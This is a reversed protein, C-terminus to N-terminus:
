GCRCRRRASRDHAPEVAATASRRRRRLVADGHRGMDAPADGASRRGSRLRAGASDDGLVDALAATWRRWTASTPSAVRSATASSTSSSRGGGGSSPCAPPSRRPSCPRTARRATALAFADAGAYLGAVTPRDVTGHVISAAPSTPGPWAPACTAATRRTSTPAAPSTCRRWTTPCRPSRRRAARAVGKNPYWNAVSLLALGVAPACTSRHRAPRSTAAPSSSARRRGARPAIPSSPRRPAHREAAIVRRCRRYVARDLRRRSAAGRPAVTRDRGPAPPRHGRVPDPAAVAAGGAADAVGRHQRRRRRRRVRRAVM